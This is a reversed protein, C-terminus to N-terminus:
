AWASAAESSVDCHDNMKIEGWENRQGGTKQDQEHRTQETRDHRDIEDEETEDSQQREQQATRRHHVSPLAKRHFIRFRQQESGREGRRRASKSPVPMPLRDKRRGLIGIHLGIDQRNRGLDRRLHDLDRDGLASMDLSAGHKDPEVVAGKLCGGRGASACSSSARCDAAAAPDATSAASASRAAVRAAKASASVTGSGSSLM